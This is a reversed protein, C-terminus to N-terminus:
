REGLRLASRLTALERAFEVEVTQGPQLDRLADAL